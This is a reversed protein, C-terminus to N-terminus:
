FFKVIFKNIIISVKIFFNVSFVWDEILLVSFLFVFVNLVVKKVKVVFVMIKVIIM